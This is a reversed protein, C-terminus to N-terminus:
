HATHARHLDPLPARESSGSRSLVEWMGGAWRGASSSRPATGELRGAFPAWLLECAKIQGLQAANASYKMGQKTAKRVGGFHCIEVDITQPWKADTVGMAATGASSAGYPANNDSFPARWCVFLLLVSFFSPRSNVNM